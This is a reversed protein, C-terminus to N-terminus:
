RPGDRSGVLFPSTTPQPSGGIPEDTVASVDMALDRGVPLTIVARGDRETDFVGLSVPAADQVIGVVSRHTRGPTASASHGVAGLKGQDRDWCLRSAVVSGWARDFSGATRWLQSFSDM